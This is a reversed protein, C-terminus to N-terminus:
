GNGKWQFILARWENKSKQGILQYHRKEYKEKILGVDAELIGSLLLFGNKKQYESFSAALDLLVNRNINAIILDFQRVPVQKLTGLIANIKNKVGNLEANERLNEIALPDTDFAVVPSAGKKAAYIALIGSGTGADLVSQEEHLREEMIELILQTTEHHGTGFAMKPSIIILTESAAPKYKEWEPAIVLRETLHFTKFNEKWAENWNEERVIHEELEKRNYEPRIQKLKDVLLFKTENNWSQRPFYVIIEDEKEELGEAGEAFLLASLAELSSSNLPLHVEIWQREKIM